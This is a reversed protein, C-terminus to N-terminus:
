GFEAVYLNGSSDITIGYPQNMTGSAGSGDTAGATGPTGALTTVEGQTSIRRIADNNSDAVYVTGGSGVAVGSPYNFRADSGTADTTGITGALGAITTVVGAPTIERITQNKRDAVFLNGSSDLAIGYPQNFQAAVGTGDASGPGGAGAFVNFTYPTPYVSQAKLPAALGTLLCLPLALNRISRRMLSFRRTPLIRHIM